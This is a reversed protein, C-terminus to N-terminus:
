KGPPKTSSFMRTGSQQLHGLPPLCTRRLYTLTRTNKMFTSWEAPKDIPVHGNTKFAQSFKQSDLRNTTEMSSSRLRQCTSRRYLLRDSKPGHHPQHTMARSHVCHGM